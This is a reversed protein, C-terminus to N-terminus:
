CCRTIIVRLSSLHAVRDSLLVILVAHLIKADIGVLLTQLSLNTKTQVKLATHVYDEFDTHRVYYIHKSVM